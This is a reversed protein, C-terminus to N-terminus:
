QIWNDVQIQVSTGNGDSSIKLAFSNEPYAKNLLVIREKSLRMGYGAASDLENMNFGKGNDKIEICLNGQNNAFRVSIKGKEYLDAIGHKIANEVFPQLMMTPIEILDPHAVIANEIEYHFGYRLQEMQLYDDLLKIEDSLSIMEQEAFELAARTLSAFRNLYHNADDVQHKQILNQISNIANFMFHPNLQVQIGKLQVAVRQKQDELKRIRRRTQSRYLFFGLGLIVLTGFVYPLIKNLAYKKELVKPELVEYPIRLMEADPFKGFKGTQQIILEYKGVQALHEEAVSYKTEQLWWEIRTTDTKGAITKILYISYPTTEHNNFELSFETVSDKPFKWDLPVGTAPDFKSAFGNNLSDYRLNYYGYKSTGHVIIQKLEPRYRQRWDMIYGDRIHLKDKHAVEVLIQKGPYNFTGIAGYPKKAGYKQELKPIPSWKVREISDNEVVRYRYDHINSENIGMAVLTADSSDPILYSNYKKSFNQVEASFYNKLKPHLKIGLMISSKPVINLSKGPLFTSNDFSDFIRYLASDGCAYSAPQRVMMRQDTNVAEFHFNNGWYYDEGM